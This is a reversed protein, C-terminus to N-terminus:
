FAGCYFNYFADVPFVAFSMPGGEFVAPAWDVSSVFNMKLGEEFDPSVKSSLMASVTPVVVINGFLADVKKEAGIKVGGLNQPRVM